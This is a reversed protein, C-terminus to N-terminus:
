TRSGTPQERAILRETTTAGSEAAQLLDRVLPTPMHGLGLGSSSVAADLIKEAPPELRERCSPHTLVERAVYGNRCSAAEPLLRSTIATALAPDPETLDLATLGIRARFLDLGATTDLNRYSKVM